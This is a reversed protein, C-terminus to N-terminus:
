KFPCPLSVSKIVCSRTLRKNFKSFYFFRSDTDDHLSELELRYSSDGDFLSKGGYDSLPLM